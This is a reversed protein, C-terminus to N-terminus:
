STTQDSPELSHEYRFRPSLNGMMQMMKAKPTMEGPRGMFRTLRPGEGEEFLPEEMGQMRLIERMVGVDTGNGQRWSEREKAMLREFGGEGGFCASWGWGLGRAFRAEWNEIERWAGENLFNHVAVMSEVHEAPTDDYGKRIMANYMQQPSPYEWM